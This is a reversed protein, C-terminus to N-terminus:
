LPALGGRGGLEVEHGGAQVGEVGGVLFSAGVEVLAQRQGAVALGYVGAARGGGPPHRVLREEGADLQVGVVRDAGFGSSGEPRQEVGVGLLLGEGPGVWLALRALRGSSGEHMM